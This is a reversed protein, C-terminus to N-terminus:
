LLGGGNQRFVGCLRALFTDGLQSLLARFAGVPHISRFDACFDDLPM